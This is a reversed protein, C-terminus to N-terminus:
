QAQVFTSLDQLRPDGSLKPSATVIETLCDALDRPVWAQRDITKWLLELCEEPFERCLWSEKLLHVFHDPRKLPRLWYRVTEIAEPLNQKASVVLRALYNSAGDSINALSNPWVGKWFPLIRNQWYEARQDGASDLAEVLAEAADALGAPPLAAFARQLERAEFVDEPSLAVFTLLMAFQRGQSGLEAFQSATLLFDPKFAALLQPTTRPSSLFGEWMAAAEAKSFLWSFHPLLHSTTWPEDVRFLSVLEAALIVRGARFKATSDRVIETLLPMVDERIGDGDRPKSQYWYNALASTVHGVPHNIAHTVSDTDAMGSDHQMALIRECLKLFVDPTNGVHPAAAQLWWSVSHASIAFVDVPMAAVIEALSDWSVRILAKDTWVVLADRWRVAPWISNRALAALAQM